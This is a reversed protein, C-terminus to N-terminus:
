RALSFLNSIFVLVNRNVQKDAGGSIIVDKSIVVATITGSHGALTLVKVFDSLRYTFLLPKRWNKWTGGVVLTRSDSCFCTIFRESPCDLFRCVQCNITFVWAHKNVESKQKEM